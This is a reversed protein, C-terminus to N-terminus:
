SVPKELTDIIKKAIQVSAKLQAERTQAGM